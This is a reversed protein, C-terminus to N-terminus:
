WGQHGTRYKNCVRQFGMPVENLNADEFGSRQEYYHGALLMIALKVDAPVAAVNPWGAVFEVTVPRTMAESVAPYDLDPDYVLAPIGTLDVSYGSLTQEVNDDDYYKVSTVSTVKGRQLRIIDPFTTLHQRFTTPLVIRGDTSFEFQQRASTIYVSLEADEATGSNLRLHGKLEDLSVPEGAPETVVEIIDNTLEM